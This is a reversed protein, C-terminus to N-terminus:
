LHQQRRQGVASRGSGRVVGCVAVVSPLPAVSSRLSGELDQGHGTGSPGSGLRGSGLVHGVRRWLLQWGFGPGRGDHFSKQESTVQDSIDKLEGDVRELWKAKQEEAPKPWNRPVSVLGQEFLLKNDEDAARATFYRDKKSVKDKAEKVESATCQYLRRKLTDEEIHCLQCTKPVDYGAEWCRSSTWLGGTAFARLLGQQEATFRKSASIRKLPELTICDKAMLDKALEQYMQEHHGSMLMQHIAKPSFGTFCIRAAEHDTIANFSSMKMGIRALELHM